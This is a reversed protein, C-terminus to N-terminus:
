QTLTLSTDPIAIPRACPNQCPRTFWACLKRGMGMMTRVSEAPTHICSQIAELCLSLVKNVLPMGVALAASMILASTPDEQYDIAAYLPKGNENAGGLAQFAYLFVAYSAYVSLPLVYEKMVRQCKTGATHLPTNYHLYKAILILTDSSHNLIVLATRAKELPTEPKDMTPFVLVFFLATATLSFNLTLSRATTRKSEPVDTIEYKIEPTSGGLFEGEPDGESLFSYSHGVQDDQITPSVLMSQREKIVKRARIIDPIAIGGIVMCDKIHTLYAFFLFPGAPGMNKTVFGDMIFVLTPVPILAANLFLEWGANRKGM